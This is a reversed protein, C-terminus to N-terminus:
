GEPKPNDGSNFPVLKNLAERRKGCGGCPKVGIASTMRAVADGLGRMPATKSPSPTFSLVAVTGDAHAEVMFEGDKTNFRIRAM